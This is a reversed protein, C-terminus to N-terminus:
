AFVKPLHGECSDRRCIPCCTADFSTDDTSSDVAASAGALRWQWRDAADKDRVFARGAVVRDKQRRLWWGASKPNWDGRCAIEAIKDRLAIALDSGDQSIAGIDKSDGGFAANWLDMVARLEDHRPEEDLVRDTTDKPDACDLWVLSGRILNYDAFGGMPTLRVPRGALDYARLITLAAVVLASREAFM